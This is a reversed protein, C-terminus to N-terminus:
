ICGVRTAVEESLGVLLKGNLNKNDYYNKVQKCDYGYLFLESDVLENDLCSFKGGVRVPCGELNSLNNNGVSLLCGLLSNLHNSYCSFNGGVSSPCGLLSTLKNNYCDFNGSVKRFQIPLM